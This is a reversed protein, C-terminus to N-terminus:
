REKMEYWEDHMKQGMEWKEDRMEDSQLNCPTWIPRSTVDNSGTCFILRWRLGARGSVFRSFTFVCLLLFCKRRCSSSMIDHLIFFLWFVLILMLDALWFVLFILILILDALALLDDTIIPSLVTTPKMMFPSRWGVQLWVTICACEVTVVTLSLGLGYEGSEREVVTPSTHDILMVLSSVVYEVPVAHFCTQHAGVDEIKWWGDDM